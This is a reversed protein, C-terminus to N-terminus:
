VWYGEARRVSGRMAGMLVRSGACPGMLACAKGMLFVGCTEAVTM